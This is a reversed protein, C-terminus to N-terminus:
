LYKKRKAEMELSKKFVITNEESQIEMALLNFLQKLKHVPFYTIPDGIDNAVDEIVVRSIPGLHYSLQNAIFGIFESDIVNDSTKTIQILGQQLLIETKRKLENLDYHGERAISELTKNGDIAWLVNQMAIDLKIASPNKQELRKYVIQSLDDNKNKM